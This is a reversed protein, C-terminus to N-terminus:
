STPRRGSAPGAAENPPASTDIPTITDGTVADVVDTAEDSTIVATALAMLLVLLAVSYIAGGLGYLEWGLLGVM